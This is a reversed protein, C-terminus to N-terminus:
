SHNTHNPLRRLSKRILQANPLHGWKLGYIASTITTRNVRYSKAIQMITEGAAYRSRAELVVADTLVALGHAEGNNNTGHIKKDANNEKKTAWALNDARNNARSGDIHRCEHGEPCPGNFTECVMRHVYRDYTKGDRSLTVQQYGHTHSRQKIIKGDRYVVGDFSVMYNPFSPYPRQEMM